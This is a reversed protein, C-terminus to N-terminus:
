APRPSPTLDNERRARAAWEGRLMAFVHTDRRQGDVGFEDARLTGELTLGNKRAVAISARNRTDCRWVLREWGWTGFGWDLMLALARAGLGQGAASARIWMGIEAVGTTLPGWRLHYGTGGVLHAGRWIGLVFDDNCLYSGAFRRARAEAAEPTDERTAWPMWPRLHEYSSVTAELLAPGDGPRYSRITLDGDAVSLPAIFPETLMAVETVPHGSSVIVLHCPSFSAYPATRLAADTQQV